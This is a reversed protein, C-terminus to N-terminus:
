PDEGLVVCRSVRLLQQHLQSSHYLVGIQPLANEVVTTPEPRTGESPHSYPSRGAPLVTPKRFPSQLYPRVRTSVCLEQFLQRGQAHHHRHPASLHVGQRDLPHQYRFYLLSTNACWELHLPLM